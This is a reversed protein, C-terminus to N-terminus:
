RIRGASPMRPRGVNMAAGCVACVHQHDPSNRKVRMTRRKMVRRCECSCYLGQRGKLPGGCVLCRRQGDVTVEPLLGAERVAREFAEPTWTRNNADFLSGDRLRFKQQPPLGADVPHRIPSHLFFRGSTPDPQIGLRQIIEDVKM